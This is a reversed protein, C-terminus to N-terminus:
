PPRGDVHLRGCPDGERARRPGLRRWGVRSCCSNKDRRCTCNPGGVARSFRPGVPGAPRPLGPQNLGRRTCFTPVYLVHLRGTSSLPSGSRAMANSLQASGTPPRGSPGGAGGSLGGSPPRGRCSPRRIRRGGVGGRTTPCGARTSAPRGLGGPRRQPGVV